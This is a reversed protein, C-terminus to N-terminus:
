LAPLPSWAARTDPSQLRQRPSRWRACAARAATCGPKRHVRRTRALCRGGRTGAPRSTCPSWAIRAMGSWGAPRGGAALASHGIRAPRANPRTRKARPPAHPQRGSPRGVPKTPRGSFRWRIMGAPSPRRLARRRIPDVTPRGAPRSGTAAPSRDRRPLVPRTRDAPPPAHPQQGSPRGAPKTRRGSHRRHTPEPARRRRPTQRRM